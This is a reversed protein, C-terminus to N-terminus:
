NCVQTTTTRPTTADCTYHGNEYRIHLGWDGIEGCGPIQTWEIPCADCAQFQYHTWGEVNGTKLMGQYDCTFGNVWASPPPCADDLVPCTAFETYLPTGSNAGGSATTGGSGGTAAGGSSIAGGSGGTAAGGSSTTGGSATTGGSNTAGGSATSGGSGDAICRGEQCHGDACGGLAHYGCADQCTGCERSECACAAGGADEPVGGTGTGVVGGTAGGGSGGLAPNGGSSSYSIGGTAAGGMSAGLAGGTGVFLGDNGAGSCGIALAAAAATWNRRGMVMFAFRQVDASRTLGCSSVHQKEADKLV